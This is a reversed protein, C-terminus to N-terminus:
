VRPEKPTGGGGGRVRLISVLDPCALLLSTKSWQLLRPHPQPITFPRSDQSRRKQSLIWAGRIPLLPEPLNQQRCWLCYVTFAQLGPDHQPGAGTGELALPRQGPLSFSGRVPLLRQKSDLDEVRSGGALTGRAAPAPLGHTTEKAKPQAYAFTPKASQTLLSEGADTSVPM